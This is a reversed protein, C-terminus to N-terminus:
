ITTRAWCSILTGVTFCETLNALSSFIANSTGVRTFLTFRSLIFIVHCFCCAFHTAFTLVRWSIAGCEAALTFSTLVEVRSLINTARAGKSLNSFHSHLVISANLASGALGWVGVVCLAVCTLEPAIPGWSENTVIASDPLILIVLPLSIALVAADIAITHGQKVFM